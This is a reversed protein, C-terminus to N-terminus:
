VGGVLRLRRQKTRGPTSSPAPVRAVQPPAEPRTLFGEMADPALPRAFLYGQGLRCGLARGIEVIARALVSRDGDIGLGSVFSRDIKLVDVPFRELYSLSSYGTGFDDIALRVGLARLGDLRAVTDATHSMLVSETIELTLCHAPLGSEELAARVTAIFDVQEFQRASLNVCAELEPVDLRVQWDRVQRCAERLV